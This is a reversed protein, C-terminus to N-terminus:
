KKSNASYMIDNVEFNEGQASLNSSSGNASTLGSHAPAPEPGHLQPTQEATHACGDQPASSEYRAASQGSDAGYHSGYYHGYDYHGGLCVM